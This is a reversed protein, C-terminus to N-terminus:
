IPGLFRIRGANLEVDCQLARKDATTLRIRGQPVHDVNKYQGYDIPAPHICLEGDKEGGVNFRIPIGTSRQTLPQLALMGELFVVDGFSIPMM